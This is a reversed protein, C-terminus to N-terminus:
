GAYSVVSKRLVEGDRERLPLSYRTRGDYYKKATLTSESRAESIRELRTSKDSKVKSKRKSSTSKSSRPRRSRTGACSVSDSPLVTRSDELGEVTHQDPLPLLNLLPIGHQENRSVRSPAVSKSKDARSKASRPRESHAEDQPPPAASKAVSRSVSLRSKVDEKVALASGLASRAVSLRSKADEKAMVASGAVSRPLSLRSRVDEKVVRSGVVSEYSPPEYRGPPPMPAPPPAEICALSRMNRGEPGVSERDVMGVRPRRRRVALAIEYDREARSSDEESKCMAYVVAAGAAAGLMTGMLAKDSIEGRGAERLLLPDTFSRVIGPILSGRRSIASSVASASSRRESEPRGVASAGALADLAASGISKWAALSRSESLVNEAPAAAAASGAELLLGRPAKSATSPAAQVPMNHYVVEVSNGDPDLVVANFCEADDNRYAPSEGGNAGSNMATTYFARVANRNPASFAIHSTGVKLSCSTHAYYVQSLFFWPPPTPPNTSLQNKPSSYILRAM